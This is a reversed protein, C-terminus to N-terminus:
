PPLAMSRASAASGSANGAISAAVGNWGTATSSIAAVIAQSAPRSMSSGLAFATVQSRICGSGTVSPPTISCNRADNPVGFYGRM